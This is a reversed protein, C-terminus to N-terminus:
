RQVRDAVSGRNKFYGLSGTNLQTAYSSPHSIQLAPLVSFGCCMLSEEAQVISITFNDQPNPHYPWEEVKNKSALM